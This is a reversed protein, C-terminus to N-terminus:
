LLKAIFGIADGVTKVGLADEEDMELDFQRKRLGARLKLQELERLAITRIDERSLPHFHM